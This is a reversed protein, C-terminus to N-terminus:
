RCGGRREYLVPLEDDSQAKYEGFRYCICICVIIYYSFQTYIM